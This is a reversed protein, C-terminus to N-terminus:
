DNLTGRLVSVSSHRPDGNHAQASIDVVNFEDIVVGDPVALEARSGPSLAGLAYMRGSADLLWVEFYGTTPALGQTDVRLFRRGAVTVLEASGSQPGPGAPAALTAAAVTQPEQAAPDSLVVATAGAGALAGIVAAAALWGGVRRRTPRRDARVQEDVAAWVAPPPDALEPPTGSTGSLGAVAAIEEVAVRCDACGALHEAEAASGTTGDFGVAVLRDHSLHQM